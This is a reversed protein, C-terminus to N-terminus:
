YNKNSLNPNATIDTAPIPYINYKNDVAKGEEVGGKWEWLYNSTTFDGFRILDTRRTGEWYLERGREDLFFNVNIDNEKLDGSTNGYARERLLNIYQLAQDKTAGTGGRWVSEGLMLYVDALRFLPFDTNVGSSATNSAAVGDDTLNSWKTVLYGNSQDSMTTIEKTQGKTFFMARGDGNSFLDPINSRVRFMGWGSKVGLSDPVEDTSTSSVEGCIIYTTAGWSVTNTADVCLPFIIEDTRKNNEANFLKKYSPDLTYGDNIVKNCYTICDTYRATDTYVEANLYLKALLTWAAGHSVRGYECDTRDPLTTDISKLESEVYDFLKSASYSPPNFAGVEDNEDVFPGQHYLDLVHYYALARLFRAEALYRKLTTQDSSSFKSIKSDSANRIFENCLSITYYLRYYMDSVWPDNADWSLYTLNKVNDGELWTCALEDTGCEQLNFYCRMYDYGSNSSIDADGGGKEQGTIVFSAYIKALVSNYNSVSNYVTGSTTGIHPSQNLDGACGTFALLSICAAVIYLYKKKM